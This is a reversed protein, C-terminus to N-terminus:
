HFAHFCPSSVYPEFIDKFNLIPGTKINCVLILVKSQKKGGVFIMEKELVFFIKVRIKPVPLIIERTARFSSVSVMRGTHRSSYM